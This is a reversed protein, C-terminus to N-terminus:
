RDANSYICYHDFGKISVYVTLDLDKELSPDIDSDYILRYSNPDGPVRWVEMDHTLEEGTVRNRIEIEAKEIADYNIVLEIGDVFFQIMDSDTRRYSMRTQEAAYEMDHESIAVDNHSNLFESPRNLEDTCVELGYQEMITEQESYLDVGLGLRGGDINVGMASLTTPFLDFTSYLREKQPDVPKKAANIIVTYTKRLYDPDVNECFDVDMTTHDGCIVITTNEYFDQKKIWEVFDCVQRSSCAMVNAYQNDGFEDGCLECVYGDEFHTDVTLMTLNFPKDDQALMLLDEKAFEFLKTDEYGWFVHYDAPIVDNEIAYEYDHMLYDGHERYFLKRGGFVAASGLLLEQNYGQDELIDGIGTFESFFTEQENMGSANLPIKLPLGMSQGFMAGMTWTTGPLPVAGNLKDDNGSFDEEKKALETLEPIVNEDFAGGVSKDAYTMEMSELYIYILNRKKEPFVMKVRAPNVYNDEVFDSSKDTFYAMVKLNKDLTVFGIGAIVLIVAFGAALVARFHKSKKGVVFVIVVFAIWGLVAPIFFKVVYDKVMDQNTGDFSSKVHYLVEDFSLSAWTSVLWRSSVTVVIVILALIVYLAILIYKLIKSLKSKM